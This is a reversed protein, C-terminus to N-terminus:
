SRDQKALRAFFSLVYKRYIPGVAKEIWQDEIPAHNRAIAETIVGEIDSFRRLRKEDVAAQFRKTLPHQKLKQEEIWVDYFACLIAIASGARLLDIDVYHYRDGGEVEADVFTFPDFRINADANHGFGATADALDVYMMLIDRVADDAEHYNDATIIHMASRLELREIDAIPAYSSSRPFHSRFASKPGQAVSVQGDAGGVFWVGDIKCAAQAEGM